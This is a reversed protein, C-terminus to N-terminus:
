GERYGPYLGMSVRAIMHFLLSSSLAEDHTNMGEPDSENFLCFFPSSTQARGHKQRELYSSLRIRPSRSIAICLQGRELSRLISTVTLHMSM